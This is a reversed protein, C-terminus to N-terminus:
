LDRASVPQQKKSGKVPVVRVIVDTPCVEICDGCATCKEYDIRALNDEVHIADAECVKECKKCGTCAVSCIRKARGGKDGSNCVVLVEQHRPVIEILGRPCAEACLGCGTCRERDVWRRHEPDIIIANVPCTDKCTGLGLCGYSCAKGGGAIKDAAACSSIGQYLAKPVSESLGGKCHVLAVGRERMELSIGMVRAVAEAVARGGAVCVDVPATGAVVAEAAPQCGPYGCAGCNSGLIAGMVEDVRPDTEVQFRTSAVALLVGFLFALGALALIAKWVISWDM